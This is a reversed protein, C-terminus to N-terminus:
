ATSWSPKWVACLITIIWHCSPLPDDHAPHGPWRGLETERRRGPALPLRLGKDTMVGGHQALHDDRAQQRARQIGHDGEPEPEDEAHHAHEVDRM